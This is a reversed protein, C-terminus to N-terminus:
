VSPSCRYPFHEYERRIKNLMLISKNLQQRLLVDLNSSTLNDMKRARRYEPLYINLLILCWKLGFLPYVIEVRDRVWGIDGFLSFAKNIFRKKLSETLDMGPHLLFDCIMKAPDDWGFYEFDLFVLLGNPRRICNHFGFDSPSLIREEYSLCDEIMRGLSSINNECWSTMDLFAPRIDIELFQSFQEYANIQKAVEELKRLRIEISGILSKLSFCAEAAQPLEYSGLRTKADILQHIFDVTQDIDSEDVRAVDVADGDVYQYIACQNEPDAVIPKPVCDFGLNALVELGTFEVDLRSKGEATFGPYFKAVYKSGDAGSIAFSRSNRGGDLPTVDAIRNELLGSLYDLYSIRSGGPLSAM